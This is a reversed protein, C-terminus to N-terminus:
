YTIIGCDLQLWLACLPYMAQTVHIVGGGVNKTGVGCLGKLLLENLNGSTLPCGSLDLVYATVLVFDLRHVLVCM